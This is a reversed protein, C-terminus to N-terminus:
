QGIMEQHEFLIIKGDGIGFSDDVENSKDREREFRYYEDNNDLIFIIM